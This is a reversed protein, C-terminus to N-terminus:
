RKGVKDRGVEKEDKGEGGEEEERCGARGGSRRRLRLRSAGIWGVVVERWRRGLGLGERSGEEVAGGAEGGGM